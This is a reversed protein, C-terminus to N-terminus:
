SRDIQAQNISIKNFVFMKSFLSVEIIEKTSNKDISDLYADFDNEKFDKNTGM